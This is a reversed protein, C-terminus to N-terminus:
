INSHQQWGFTTVLQIMLFIYLIEFNAINCDCQKTVVVTIPVVKSIMLATRVTLVCYVTCLTGCSIYIYINTYPEGNRIM